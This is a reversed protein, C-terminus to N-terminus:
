LVLEAEHLAELAPQMSGQALLTAQVEFTDDWYVNTGRRAEAAAPSSLEAKKSLAALIRAAEEIHEDGREQITKLQNLGFKFMM